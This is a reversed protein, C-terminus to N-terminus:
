ELVGASWYGAQLSARSNWPYLFLHVVDQIKFL